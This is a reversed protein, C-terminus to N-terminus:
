RRKGRSQRDPGASPVRSDSGSVRRLAAGVLAKGVRGAAAVSRGAIWITTARITRLDADVTARSLGSTALHREAVAEPASRLAVRLSLLLVALDDLQGVVPIIGPVPDIPSVAYGLGGALAAKGRRPVTPERMLLWGLRLYRPVRGIVGGFRVM